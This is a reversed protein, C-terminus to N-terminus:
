STKIGYLNFTGSSINGTHPFIQFATIPSTSTMMGSFFAATFRGTSNFYNASGQITKLMTSENLNYLKITGNYKSVASNFLGNAIDGIVMQAQSSQATNLATNTDQVFNSYSYILSSVYNAGGDTSFRIGPIAGNATVYLGQIHLEYESFALLNVETTNFNVASTAVSISRSALLVYPSSVRASYVQSAVAQTSGTDGRFQIIDGAVTTFNQGIGPLQLTATSQMAVTSAFELTRYWGSTLAMSSISGTSTLKIHDGTVNNLNLAASSLVMATTSGELMGATSWRGLPTTSTIVGTLDFGAQKTADTPDRFLARGGPLLPVSENTGALVGYSVASLGADLVGSDNVVTVTTLAGFASATITSYITGGTNTTKVRRGAMFIATQDGAVTFSTTSVFTPTPGVVWEVGTQATVDNIGSLNDKSWYPSVPPDTDNAPAWVVKYTAGAQFWVEGGSPLNGGSDLVLPNTWATSGTSDKYVTQKTASGAVYFFLQVGNGPTNGGPIFFTSQIPDPALYTTTM